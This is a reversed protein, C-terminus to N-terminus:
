EDVLSSPDIKGPPPSWIRSSCKGRMTTTGRRGTLFYINV